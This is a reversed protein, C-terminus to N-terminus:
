GPVVQLGIDLMEKAIPGALTGGTGASIEDTVGKLMVAVALRPAEAPAFAMIWAHSREPQGTANLQATGTKAAAQIGNALQMTSRATGVQVVGTMLQTLTAATDPRMPVKWVKPETREILQNDHDYTGEVVYPAMMQGGNAVTSAIMAMQLPTLAVDNQGFGRIALLPINDVFDDVSGFNSAAPRPLDFPPAENLGFADAGSVMTEAGIEVALRAFPTNCSRAFVTTFVGGCTGGGYNQIPDTTQPPTYESEDPFFEDTTVAGSELAITTTVVKFTSGPMYREQYANALLPKNPQANLFTLWDEADRTNHVAILNPDYTPTSFMALVAGTRPDMMVVSGERGALLGAALLQLDSRMTLRVSGSNDSDGGFIDPLDGIISPRLDTGNLIGNQTRELQTAGFAYSYYGTVNAFLEGTPYERQFAFGDDSPTSEALVVGDAALIPGRPLNFEKEAERTNRPDEALEERQQGAQLLNLQVFLVLYCVLLGAALRRIQKNM